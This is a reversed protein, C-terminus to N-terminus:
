FRYALGFGIVPYYQYESLDDAAQQREREIETALIALALPNDLFPSGPPLNARLSVRPKGQFVVGFDSYLRLRKAPDLIWGFGFGAYPAFEDFEVEADLTGVAAAPFLLNGIEYVNSALSEGTVHNQNYVIGGSLRFSSGNPNWDVLAMASRLRAEARYDIDDIEREENHSYSSGSLRFALESGLGFTAEVGIGLTGVKGGLAVNAANAPPGLFMLAIVALQKPGLHTM